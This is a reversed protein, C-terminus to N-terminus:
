GSKDANSDSGTRRDGVLDKRAVPDVDNTDEHWENKAALAQPNADQHTRYQEAYTAAEQPQPHHDHLLVGFLGAAVAIAGLLYCRARDQLLVLLFTV